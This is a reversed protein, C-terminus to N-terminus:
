APSAEAQVQLGRLAALAAAAHEVPVFLHDHRSAAVVNCSIGRAALATAVAATLGVASLASEVGLSVWAARYGVSWGHERATAEPVIVTLAERERFWGIAEVPPPSGLPLECFAFVGPHLVPALHRLLEALDNV